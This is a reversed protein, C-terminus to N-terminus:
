WRYGGTHLNPMGLIEARGCLKQRRERVRGGFVRQDDVAVVVLDVLRLPRRPKGCCRLGHGLTGNCPCAATDAFDGAPVKPPVAGHGHHGSPAATQKLRQFPLTRARPRDVDGESITTNRHARAEEAGGDEINGGITQDIIDPKGPLESKGSGREALQRTPRWQAVAAIGLQMGQLVMAGAPLITGGGIEQRHAVHLAM